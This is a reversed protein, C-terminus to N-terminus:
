LCFIGSSELGRLIADAIQDMQLELSLVYAARLGVYAKSLYSTTGARHQSLLTFSCCMTAILCNRAAEGKISTHSSIASTGHRTAEVRREFPLVGSM